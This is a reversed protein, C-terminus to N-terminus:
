KKAQCQDNMLWGIRSRMLSPWWETRGVGSLTSSLFPGDDPGHSTTFTTCQVFGPSPRIFCDGLFALWIPVLCIPTYSIQGSRRSSVPSDLSLVCTMDAM